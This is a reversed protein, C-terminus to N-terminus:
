VLHNFSLHQNFAVFKCVLVIDQDLGYFTTLMSEDVKPVLVNTVQLTSTYYSKM